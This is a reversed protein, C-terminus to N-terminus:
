FSRRAQRSNLRLPWSGARKVARKAAATISKDVQQLIANLAQIERAAREIQEAAELMEDLAQPADPRRHRRNIAFASVRASM